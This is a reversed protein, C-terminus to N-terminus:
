AIPDGEQLVPIRYIDAGKRQGVHCIFEDRSEPFDERYHGGRSEERYLAGRVLLDAVTLLSRARHLYYEDRDTPLDDRLADIVEWAVGLTSGSRVIGVKDNLVEALRMRIWNLLASHAPELHFRPSFDTPAPGSKERLTHEVARHAFVLCEILSNSALRNAGMLGTFALEGCAYLNPVNTCGHLDTRVGGVMYHAAPAVPIMSCMDLGVELCHRYITPFRQQVKERPIHRLDLWVFPERQQQIERFIARAVTDRPELEALPYKGEMFREHKANLLHAGEGRVAESVLFASGSPDWLATPHFQIFEFDVINCGAEWALAIGDGVSTRPNTSRQYIASTGGLTLLTHSGVFLIEIGRTIDWTRLGWCVGDRLLVELVAHNEYIDVNESSAVRGALFSTVLAGTADGGAHLIRRHHHGGELGLLLTGNASDFQMGAAILDKIREPGENVLVEVAPWDCLGRGAELTDARHLAPSDEKDFVAAIGGQAYYSNSERVWSKTVLAVRGYRAAELAVALGALGSGAVVYDYSRVYNEMGFYALPM